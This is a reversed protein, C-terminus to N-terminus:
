RILGMGGSLNILTFKKENQVTLRHLWNEDSITMDFESTNKLYFNFRQSTALMAM